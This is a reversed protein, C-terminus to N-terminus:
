EQAYAAEGPGRGLAHWASGLAAGSRAILTSPRATPVARHTLSPPMGHGHMYHIRDPTPLELGRAQAARLQQPRAALRTLDLRLETCDRTLQSYERQLAQRRFACQAIRANCTVFGIGVGALLLLGTLMTALPPPAAARPRCRPTLSPAAEPLADAYLDRTRLAQAMHVVEFRPRTHQLSTVVFLSRHQPSTAVVRAIILVTVRPPGGAGPARRFPGSSDIVTSEWMPIAISVWRHWPAAFLRLETTFVRFRAHADTGPRFSHRLRTAASAIISATVIAVTLVTICTAVTLLVIVAV